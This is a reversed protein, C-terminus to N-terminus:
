KEQKDVFRAFAHGMKFGCSFWYLAAEAETMRIQNSLGAKKVHEFAAKLGVEVITEGNIKEM